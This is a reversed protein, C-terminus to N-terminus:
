RIKLIKTDIGWSRNPKKKDGKLHGSNHDNLVEKKGGRKTYLDVVQGCRVRGVEGWMQWLIVVKDSRVGLGFDLQQGCSPIVLLAKCGLLFQFVM